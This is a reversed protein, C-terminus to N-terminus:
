FSESMRALVDELRGQFPGPTEMKISALAVAFTLSEQVPHDIRRALYAAMTTDGRGTRGHSSRNSFKEFYTKEKHRVFAGDSCTLLTEVAGWEEVTRAAEEMDRTGTLVDAEVVDLKVVDVLGV